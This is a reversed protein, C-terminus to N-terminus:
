EGLGRRHDERSYGQAPRPRDLPVRYSHSAPCDIVLAARIIGSAMVKLPVPVDLRIPRSQGAPRDIVLGAGIIRM